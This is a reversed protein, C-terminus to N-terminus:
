RHGLPDLVLVRSVPQGRIFKFIAQVAFGSTLHVRKGDVYVEIQQLDHWRSAVLPPQNQPEDSRQRLRRIGWTIENVPILSEPGTLDLDDSLIGDSIPHVCRDARHHYDINPPGISSPDHLRTILIVFPDLPAVCILDIDPSTWVEDRADVAIIGDLKVCFKSLNHVIDDPM